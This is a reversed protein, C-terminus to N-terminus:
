GSIEDLPTLIGLLYEDSVCRGPQVLKRERLLRPLGLLAAMQGRLRARAAAGRWARLAQWAIRFQARLVAPWFRRLLSGPYNKVIVWLTNRGVFFSAMPGGGTASVMHYVVARPAYICGYGALQARWSLDVDELYSGFTEDLLGIQDLMQRRYAPAVGAAGFVWCEEDFAPGDPRWVGRNGPIGDLRYFDGATHLHDRRDFLRVRSTAMGAEPHRDLAAVLEAIWDPEAEADNNFAVLLRGQAARFGANVGGAYGRNESLAVVRVEPYRQALLALSGDTSGNDVVIVELPRYTQQRLSALCLPLLREGNWNPVVVSVLPTDTM